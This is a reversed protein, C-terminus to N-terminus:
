DFDNLCLLTTCDAYLKCGIQMSGRGWKEVSLLVSTFHCFQHSHQLFSAQVEWAPFLTLRYFIVYHQRLALSYALRPTAKWLTEVPTIFCKFIFWYIFLLSYSKGQSWQPKFLFCLTSVFFGLLGRSLLSFLRFVRVLHWGVFFFESCHFFFIWIRLKM